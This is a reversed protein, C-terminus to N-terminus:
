KVAEGKEESDREGCEVKEMENGRRVGERETAVRGNVSHFSSSSSFVQTVRSACSSRVAGCGENIGKGGETSRM